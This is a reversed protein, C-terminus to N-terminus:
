FGAAPLAELVAATFERTTAPKKRELDGTLRDRRRFVDGLATRIQSAARGEGLHDLMLCASLLLGSPNAIGKGAIDPASGHVAEFVACREGINASAALGLGGALGSVLDSLIDGFMNTTVIVEFQLPDRVLQLCMNDIIRDDLAIDPYEPAVGRATDLFLGSTFKLINAKHVATVKRRGTRRAHDFAFRSIREMAPRTVVVIAEAAYRDRGIYHEIGSYLGETNERVVVIDLGPWFTPIGEWARTPRLNAYLDFEQRIAVNVSRFGDGVPTTLPGKLAVCTDRISEMTEPPLPTGSTQFAGEGAPRTVWDIGVGAAAIVELVAETIEPGIGDGPILTVQHRESM